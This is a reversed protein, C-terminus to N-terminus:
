TLVQKKAKRKRTKLVYVRQVGDGRWHPPAELTKSIRKRTIQTGHLRMHFTPGKNICALRSWPQDPRGQSLHNVVEMGIRPHAFPATNTAPGSSSIKALLQKPTQRPKATWHVSGKIRGIQDALPNRRREARLYRRPRPQRPSTPKKPHSCQPRFTFGLPHRSNTPPLRTSDTSAQTRPLQSKKLV